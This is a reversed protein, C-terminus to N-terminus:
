LVGAQHLVAADTRTPTTVSVSVPTSLNNKHDYARITYNYTANGSLDTDFLSTGPTQLLEGDSRQIRYGAVGLNDTSSAWALKVVSSGLAQATFSGPIVDAM